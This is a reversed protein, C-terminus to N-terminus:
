EPKESEYLSTTLQINMNGNRQRLEDIFEKQSVNRKMKVEYTITFMTGLDSTRIRTLEVLDTYKEFVDVFATEYSLDEPITIRLRLQRESIFPFKVFHLVFLVIIMIVEILAAYFVYGLGLAMGMATSFFIYTIDETSRQKSRFRTMCFIGALSVSARIIRTETETTSSTLYFVLIMISTSIFPFLILTLPFDRTFGRNKKLFIYAIALGFGFVLSLGLCLFIHWAQISTGFISQFM